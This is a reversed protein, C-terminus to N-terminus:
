WRVPLVKKTLTMGHPSVECIIPTMLVGLDQAQKLLTAYEPDIEKASMFSDVDSRQIFFVIEAGQGQQKLVMLEKLHKQGRTTEADPFQASTGNKLTVNKVEIFHHERGRTLRFDLRTEANLKFEPKIESYGQWHALWGGHLAENMMKNPTNTNVGVFGTPTTVVELTYKLKRSPDSSETFYCDQDAFLCSKLSGTNPVHATVLQNEYMIDAFFRKYRKKLQGKKMVREFKM